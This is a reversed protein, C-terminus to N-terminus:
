GMMVLVDIGDKLRSKTRESSTYKKMFTLVSQEPLFFIRHVKKDYLFKGVRETPNWGFIRGTFDNVQLPAILSEIENVVRIFKNFPVANESKLGKENYCTLTGIYYGTDGLANLHLVIGGSLKKHNKYEDLEKSFLEMAKEVTISM